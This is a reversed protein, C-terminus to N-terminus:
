LSLFKGQKINALSVIPNYIITYTFVNSKFAVNLTKLMFLWNNLWSKSTGFLLIECLTKSEILNLFKSFSFKYLAEKIEDVQNNFVLLNSESNENKLYIEYDESCIFACLTEIMKESPNSKMVNSIYANMLEKMRKIRSQRVIKFYKSRHVFDKKISYRIKRLVTKLVVDKRKKMGTNIPKRGAKKKIKGYKTLNQQITSINQQNLEDENHVSRISEFLTGLIKVNDFLEHKSPVDSKWLDEFNNEMQNWDLDRHLDIFNAAQSSKLGKDNENFLAQDEFDSEKWNVFNWPNKDKNRDEIMLNKIPSKIIDKRNDDDLLYDQNQLFSIEQFDQNNHEISNLLSEFM